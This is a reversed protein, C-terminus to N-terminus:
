NKLELKEGSNRTGVNIKYISAYLDTRINNFDNFYM